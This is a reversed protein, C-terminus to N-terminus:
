GCNKIEKDILALYGARGVALNIVVPFHEALM